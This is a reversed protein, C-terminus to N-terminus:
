DWIYREDYEINHRKLFLLLETKFDVKRHHEKQNAIYDTVDPAASESVTFAAYGDQWHFKGALKQEENIWRSSNGKIKQLMDSISPYPKLKVLLHLHDEVGGIILAIGGEGRVIGAIYKYLEEEFEPKIYPRREKTSFIIHCLLNTFTGAM